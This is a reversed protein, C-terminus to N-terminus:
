SIDTRRDIISILGHAHSFEATVTCIRIEKSGINTWGPGRPLIMLIEFVNRRRDVEPPRHRTYM